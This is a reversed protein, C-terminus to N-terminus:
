DVPTGVAISLTSNYPARPPGVSPRGHVAKLAARLGERHSNHTDADFAHCVFLADVIDVVLASCFGLVAACLVFAVVGAQVAAGAADTGDLRASTWHVSGAALGILASVSWATSGLVLSGVRDVVVADFGNRLFMAAVSRASACFSEGTIAVAITAFKTVFATLERVARTCAAIFASPGRGSRRGQDRALTNIVDCATVVIAAHCLSGFSSTVALRCATRVPALRTYTRAPDALAAAVASEADLDDHAEFYWCSAVLAVVFLRVQRAIALTWLLTACTCVAAAQSLPRVTWLCAGSSDVVYEGNTIHLVAAACMTGITVVALALVGLSVLVLSPHAALATTAQQLLEVSLAVRRRHAWLGLAIVAAILLSVISGYLSGVWALVVGAAVYVGPLACLTGVVVARTHTQLVHMWAGGALATAGAMAVLQLVSSSAGHVFDAWTFEGDDLVTSGGEAGLRICEAPPGLLGAINSTAVGHIGLALTASLMALYIIAPATDKFARKSVRLPSPGELLPASNASYM